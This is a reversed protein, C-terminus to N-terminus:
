SVSRSLPRSSVGGCTTMTSFWLETRPSCAIRAGQNLPAASSISIGDRQPGTSWSALPGTDAQPGASLLAAAAPAGVFDRAQRRTSTVTASETM